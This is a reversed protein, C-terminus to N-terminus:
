VRLGDKFISSHFGFPFELIIEADKQTAKECESKDTEDQRAFAV